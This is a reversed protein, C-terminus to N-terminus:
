GEVLEVTAANRLLKPGFVPRAIIYMPFGTDTGIFCWYTKLDPM